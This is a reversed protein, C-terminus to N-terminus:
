NGKSNLIRRHQTGSLHFMATEVPQDWEGERQRKKARRPRNGDMRGGTRGRGTVVATRSVLLSIIRGTKLETTFPSGMIKIENPSSNVAGVFIHMYRDSHICKGCRIIAKVIRRKFLIKPAPADFECDPSLWLLLLKSILLIKQVRERERRRREREM